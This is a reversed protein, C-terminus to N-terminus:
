KMNVLYSEKNSVNTSIESKAQKRISRKESEIEVAKLLEETTKWEKNIWYLDVLRMLTDINM